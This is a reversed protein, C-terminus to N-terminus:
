GRVHVPHRQEDAGADRRPSPVLDRRVPVHGRERDPVLHQRSQRRVPGLGRYGRRWRGCRLPHILGRETGFWVHGEQDEVIGRVAVGGFGERISFGELQSGDWRLVGAGNTGFWYHGRRDQHIRRVFTSVPQHREAEAGRGAATQAAAMSGIGGAGVILLIFFLVPRATRCPQLACALMTIVIREGVRPSSSPARVTHGSSIAGRESQLDRRHFSAAVAIAGARLSGDAGVTEVSVASSRVELDPPVSQSM